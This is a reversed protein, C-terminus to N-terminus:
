RVASQGPQFYLQPHVLPVAWVPEVSPSNQLALPQQTGRAQLPNRSHKEKALRARGGSCGLAKRRAM